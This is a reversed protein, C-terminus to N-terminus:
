KDLAGSAGCLKRMYMCRCTYICVVWGSVWARIYRYVCLFFFLSNSFSEMCVGIGAM